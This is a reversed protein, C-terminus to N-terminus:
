IYIKKYIKLSLVHHNGVHWHQYVWFFPLPIIATVYERFIKFFKMNEVLKSEPHLILKAM